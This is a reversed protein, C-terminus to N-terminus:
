ARDGNQSSFGAESCACARRSSLSDHLQVTSSGLSACLFIIVDMVATESGNTDQKSVRGRLNNFSTILGTRLNSSSYDTVHTFPIVVSFPGDNSFINFVLCKIIPFHESQRYKGSNETGIFDSKLYFLIRLIADFMQM